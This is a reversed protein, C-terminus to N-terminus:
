GMYEITQYPVKKNEFPDIIATIHSLKYQLPFGIPSGKATTELIYHAKNDIYLAKRNPINELAVIIFIHKPVLVFYAKIGIINLMSILLNSKDDCDGYGLNLTDQPFNTHFRNIKYPIQTVYDLLSQVKCEDSTCHATLKQTLQHLERSATSVRNTYVGDETGIQRKNSIAISQGVIYVFVVLSIAMIAKAFLSNNM